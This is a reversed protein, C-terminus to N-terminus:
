TWAVIPHLYTMDVAHVQVSRRVQADSVENKDVYAEPKTEACCLYFVTDFRKHFNRPTLWTSWDILSWIDPVCNLERTFLMAYQHHTCYSINKRSYRCLNVFELANTHVKFRWDERLHTPLEKVAPAFSGVVQGLKSSVDSQSRALLIGAEEFFERIACIRFAVEGPIASDLPLSSYLSPKTHSPTGLGLISAFPHAGGCSKFLSVWQPAFDAADLVGGPFVHYSPQPPTSLPLTSPTSFISPFDPPNLRWQQIYQSKSYWSVQYTM